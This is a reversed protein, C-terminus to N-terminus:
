ESPRHNKYTRVELDGWGKKACAPPLKVRLGLCLADGMRKFHSLQKMCVETFHHFSESRCEGAM